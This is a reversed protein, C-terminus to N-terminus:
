FWVQGCCTGLEESEDGGGNDSQLMRDPGKEGTLSLVPLTLPFTILGLERDWWAASPYGLHVGKDKVRPSLDAQFRHDPVELVGLAKHFTGTNKVTGAAGM